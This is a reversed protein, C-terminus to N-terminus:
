GATAARAARTGQGGPNGRNPVEGGFRRFFDEFGPPLQQQRVTISQRTSINVVAPQLREALTAFSQPAGPPPAARITGPENQATQAGVPNSLTAAAGGILIAATIGYVYRM